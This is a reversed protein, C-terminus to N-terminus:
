FRLTTFGDVGELPCKRSIRTPGEPVVTRRGTGCDHSRLQGAEAAPHLTRCWPCKQVRRHLSFFVPGPTLWTKKMKYCKTKFLVCSCFLGHTRFWINPGELVNGFGHHDSDAPSSQMPEFFNDEVAQGFWKNKSKDGLPHQASCLRLRSGDM